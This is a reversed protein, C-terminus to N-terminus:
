KTSTRRNSKFKSFFVGLSALSYLYVFFYSLLSNFAIEFISQNTFFYLSLFILSLIIVQTLALKSVFILSIKKSEKNKFQNFFKKIGEKLILCEFFFKLM